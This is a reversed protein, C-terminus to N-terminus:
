YVDIYYYLAETDFLFLFEICNLWYHIEELHYNITYNTKTHRLDIRSINIDLLILNENFTLNLSMATITEVFLINHTVKPSLPGPIYNESNRTFTLNYFEIEFSIEENFFTSVKNKETLTESNVNNNLNTLYIILFSNILILVINLIYLALLLNEKKM